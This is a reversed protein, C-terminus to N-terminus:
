SAGLFHGPNPDPLPEGPALTAGPFYLSSGIFFAANRDIWIIIRRLLGDLGLSDLGGRLSVMRALGQMHLNYTHLTGFM